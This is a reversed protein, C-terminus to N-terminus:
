FRKCKIYWWDAQEFLYYNLWGKEMTIPCLGPRTQITRTAKIETSIKIWNQGSNLFKLILNKKFIRFNKFLKSRNFVKLGVTNAAQETSREGRGHYIDILEQHQRNSELYTLLTQADHTAAEPQRCYRNETIRNQSFFHSKKRM